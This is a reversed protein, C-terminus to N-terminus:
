VPANGPRTSRRVAYRPRRWSEGLRLLPGHVCLLSVLACDGILTDSFVRDDQAPNTACAQGLRYGGSPVRITDGALPMRRDSPLVETVLACSQSSSHTSSRRRRMRSASSRTQQRVISNSISSLGPSVTM